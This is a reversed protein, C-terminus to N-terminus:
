FKQSNKKLNKKFFIWAYIRSKASVPAQYPYWNKHGNEFHKLIISKALSIEFKMCPNLLKHRRKDM